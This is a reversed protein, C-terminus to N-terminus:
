TRIKIIKECHILSSIFNINNGYHFVQPRKKLMYSVTDKINYKFRKILFAAVVAASRQMGAYCHVLIRKNNKLAVDIFCALDFILHSLNNIEKEKLNDDVPIRIKKIYDINAFPLDKTCNIIIDIKKDLIFNENRSAEIDGLWLNPIIQQVHTQFFNYDM